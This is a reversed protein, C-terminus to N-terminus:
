FAEIREVAKSLNSFQSDQPDLAHNNIQNLIESIGDEVTKSIKFNLNNKIKDFSVKYSRLDQKPNM